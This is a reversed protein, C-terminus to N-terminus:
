QESAKRKQPQPRLGSLSMVCALLHQDAVTKLRRLPEPINKFTQEYNNFASHISEAGHEGLLGIGVGLQAMLPVTHDELLHLKPTVHGLRRAIVETRCLRLFEKISKELSSIEAENVPGCRSFIKRCEAYTTFLQKYRRAILNADEVLAPCRDEIVGVPAQTIATVVTPKLGQHIHNGIFAGGHYVQRQIKNAQLVPEVSLECPGRFDKRGVVEEIEKLIGQLRGQQEEQQAAVAAYGTQLQQVLTQWDANQENTAQLHIAVFQLYNQFSACQQQTTDIELQIALRDAHLKALKGFAEADGEAAACRSALQIDLTQLDKEMAEFMWAFIGLDLHLAPIVANRVPIPLIVPRIVNNHNKAHILRSGAATYSVM